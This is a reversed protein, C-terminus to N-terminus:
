KLSLRFPEGALIGEIQIRLKESLDGSNSKVLPAITREECVGLAATAIDAPAEGSVSYRASMVRVCRIAEEMEASGHGVEALDPCLAYSEAAVSQSAWLPSVAVMTRLLM